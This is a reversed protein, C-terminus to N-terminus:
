GGPPRDTWGEYGGAALCCRRKSYILPNKRIQPEPRPRPPFLDEFVKVMVLQDQAILRATRAERFVAEVHKSSPNAQGDLPLRDGLVVLALLRELTIPPSQAGTIQEEHRSMDFNILSLPLLHTPTWRVPLSAQPQSTRGVRTPAFRALGVLLGRHDIVRRTCSSFDICSDRLPLQPAPTPSRLCRPESAPLEHPRPSSPPKPPRSDSRLFPGLFNSM